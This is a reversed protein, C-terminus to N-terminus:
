GDDGPAACAFHSALTQPAEGQCGRLVLIGAPGAAVPCKSGSAAGQVGHILRMHGHANPNLMPHYQERAWAGGGTRRRGGLHEPTENFPFLAAHVGVGAGFSKM